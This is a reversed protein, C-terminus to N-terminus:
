EYISAALAEILVQGAETATRGFSVIGDEHGGMSFLKRRRLDSQRYLRAVEASMEPTGYPIAPDTTPIGMREAAHWIHPSHGHMVWRIRSDLAYVAGHTMSESSPKVPGEAMTLNQEPHCQTIVVYHEPALDAIGGTQTGTIVFRRECPPANFPALRCSINGFGYGQYRDPQQGLLQLLVLIRRWANLERLDSAPLPPAETYQM